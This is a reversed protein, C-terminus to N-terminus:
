PFRNWASIFYDYSAPLTLLIKTMLMENTITEGSTKLKHSLEEVKAVHTSMDDAKDTTLLGTHPSM